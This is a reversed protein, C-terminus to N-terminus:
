KNCFYYSMKRICFLTKNDGSERVVAADQCQLRM